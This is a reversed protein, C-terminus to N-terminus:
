NIAVDQASLHGLFAAFLEAQSAISLKAYINRRHIKVTAGSIGLVEAIM